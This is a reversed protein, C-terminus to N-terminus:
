DHWQDLTLKEVPVGKQSAKAFVEELSDGAIFDAFAQEKYLWLMWRETSAANGQELVYRTGDIQYTEQQRYQYAMVRTALIQYDEPQM